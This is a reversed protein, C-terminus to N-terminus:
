MWFSVASKAMLRSKFFKLLIESISNMGVAVYSGPSLCGAVPIGAILFMRPSTMWFAVVRVENVVCLILRPGGNSSWPAALVAEAIM